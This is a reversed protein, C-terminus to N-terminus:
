EETFSFYLMSAHIIVVHTETNHSIQKGGVHGMKGM